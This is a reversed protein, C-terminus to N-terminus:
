ENIGWPCCCGNMAVHWISQRPSWALPSQAEQGLARLLGRDKLTMIAGSPEAGGRPSGRLGSALGSPEACGWEMSQVQGGCGQLGMLAALHEKTSQTGCGLAKQPSQPGAISGWVRLDGGLTKVLAAPSGGKLAGLPGGEWFCWMCCSLAGPGDGGERDQGLAGATRLDCCPCCGGTIWCM